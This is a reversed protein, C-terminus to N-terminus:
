IKFSKEISEAFLKKKLSLPYLEPSLNFSRTQVSIAGKLFSHIKFDLGSVTCKISKSSPNLLM